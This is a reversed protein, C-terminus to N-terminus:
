LAVIEVVVLNSRWQPWPLELRWRGKGLPRVVGIQDRDSDEGYRLMGTEGRLALSGLLVLRDDDKYLTGSIRQAGETQEFWLGGRRATISCPQEPAVAFAPASAPGAKNVGIWVTRCRYHGPEPLAGAKAADPVLLDGLALVAKSDGADRAQELSKSWASFLGALRTRDREQIVTQWAPPPGRAAAGGGKGACGALLIPAMAVAILTMKM